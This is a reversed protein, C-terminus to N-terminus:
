FRWKCTEAKQKNWLVEAASTIDGTKSPEREPIEPWLKALQWVFLYSFGKQDAILNIKKKFFAVSLFM